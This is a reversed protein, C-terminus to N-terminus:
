VRSINENWFEPTLLVLRLSLYDTSQNFCNSWLRRGVRYSGLRVFEDWTLTVLISKNAAALTCVRFHSSLKLCIQNAEKQTEMSPNKWDRVFHPRNTKSCHWFMEDLKWPEIKNQNSRSMLFDNHLEKNNTSLWTREYRSWKYKNLFSLCKKGIVVATIKPFRYWFSVFYYNIFTNLYFGSNQEFDHIKQTFKNLMTTFNFNWATKKTSQDVTYCSQKKEFIILEKVIPNNYTLGELDNVNHEKDNSM